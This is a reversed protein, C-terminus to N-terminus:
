APTPEFSSPTNVTRGQTSRGGYLTVPVGNMSMVTVDATAASTGVRDLSEEVAERVIASTPIDRRRAEAFVREALEPTVRASIVVGVPKTAEVEETEWQEDRKSM